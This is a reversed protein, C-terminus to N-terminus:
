RYLITTKAFLSCNPISANLEDPSCVPVTYRAPPAIPPLLPRRDLDEGVVIPSGPLQSPPEEFAAQPVTSTALIWKKLTNLYLERKHTVEKWKTKLQKIGSRQEYSIHQALFRIRKKILNLIPTDILSVKALRNDLVNICRIELIKWVEALQKKLRGMDMQYNKTDCRTEQSLAGDLAAVRRRYRGM